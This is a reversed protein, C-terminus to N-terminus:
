ATFGAEQLLEVLRQIPDSDDPIRFQHDVDVETPRLGRRRAEQVFEAGLDWVVQNMRQAYTELLQSYESPTVSFSSETLGALKKIREIDSM